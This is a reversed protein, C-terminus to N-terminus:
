LNSKRLEQHAKSFDGTVGAAVCSLEGALCCAAFVEALEGARGPASPDAGRLVIDLCAQASPLRTGGGVTGVNINPALLSTYLDGGDTTHMRVHGASSEIVCAVDQGCAIFMAALANCLMINDNVDGGLRRGSVAGLHGDVIAQPTTRFVSAVVRAPIVAEVVVRRGRLHFPSYAQTSCTKEGDM